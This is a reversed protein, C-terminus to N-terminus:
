DTSWRQFFKNWKLHSNLCMTILFLHVLNFNLCLFSKIKNSFSLDIYKKCIGTKTVLYTGDEKKFSINGDYGTVLGKSYLHKSLSVIESKPGYYNM